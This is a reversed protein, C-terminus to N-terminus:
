TKLRQSRWNRRSFPTYRRKGKTKIVVWTPTNSSRKKAKILRLKRPLTKNRAM